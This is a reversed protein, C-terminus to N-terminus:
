LLAYREKVNKVNYLDFEIGTDNVWEVTNKKVCNQQYLM